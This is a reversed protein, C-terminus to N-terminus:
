RAARPIVLKLATHTASFSCVKNDVLGARRAANMVETDKITAEKGKRSIVWIAGAPQLRARLSKLKALQATSDAAYFVFDLDKAAASALGAALRERLQASFEADDEGLVGVRSDPKVGLKDILSKPSRIRAAWKEAVARAGLELRARGGAHEITLAGKADTEVSRITAFSIDLRAEGRIEVRDSNLHVRGPFTASGLRVPCTAELGM